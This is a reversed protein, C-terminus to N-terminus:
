AWYIDTQAGCQGCRGDRVSGLAVRHWLRRVLVAGCEPCYTSSGSEDMVNGLYVYKLRLDLAIQRAQLLTQYPTPPLDTLQFDPHFATFHLPVRDGLHELVWEALQRIEEPSDNWTPIILNTLEIWVGMKRLEILTDLVPQLHARALKRYFEDNFSKLDVNAADIYQYVQPIAEPSIYGNTVMVSKLGRRRGERAMDMAYEAWITPENYTYSLSSCGRELAIQVAKEPPLDVAQEPDHPSRSLSWNQCFQCNLNCGATGISFSTTGPLFHFLPKKEIPDIHVACPQGYVLSYLKGGQSRRVGCFGTQGDEIHCYRPCLQCRVRNGEGPEWFRAEHM